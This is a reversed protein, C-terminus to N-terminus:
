YYSLCIDVLDNILYNSLCRTMEMKKGLFLTRAAISIRNFYEDTTRIQPVLELIELQQELFVKPILRVINHITGADFLIAKLYYKIAPDFNYLQEYFLGLNYLAMKSGHEIAMLYYKEACTLKNQKKYMCGLNNMAQRNNHKIAMLYYKEALYHEQQKEYLCGLNYMADSNNRGNEVAMHLYKKALDVKKQNMHLNGLNNM